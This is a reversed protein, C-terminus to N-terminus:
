RRGTAVSQLDKLKQANLGKGTCMATTQVVSLTMLEQDISHLKNRIEHLEENASHMEKAIKELANAIRLDTSSTRASQLTAYNDPSM